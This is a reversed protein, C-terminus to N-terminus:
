GSRTIYDKVAEAVMNTIRKGTREKLEHLKHMDEDNIQNGVWGYKKYGM